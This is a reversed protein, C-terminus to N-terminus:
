ETYLFDVQTADVSMEGGDLPMSLSSIIFKNDNLNNLKDVITVAKGVDMHPMLVSNFNAKLGNFTEQILLYEAYEKCRQTMRKVNEEVYPIEVSDMRRIGVLSVRIPSCPNDNYATYSVNEFESSNTYVTVTNKASYEYSLSLDNYLGENDIFEWEIPAYSYKNTSDDPLSKKFVLRGAADYYVDAGYGDALSKILDGIPANSDLSIEAETYISKYYYDILPSITDVNSQVGNPLNFSLAMSDSIVKYINSQPEVIYQTEIINTNLSGDIAGGKDIGNVTFVGDQNEVSTALYVGQEFWYTNTGDSIGIYLKFKKSMWFPNDENIIYKGDQNFFSVNCTRRTLQELNITVEGSVDKSIEGKILDFPKEFINLLEVKVIYKSGSSYLMRKYEDNVLNLYEM